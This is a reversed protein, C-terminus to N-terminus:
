VFFFPEGNKFLNYEVMNIRKSGRNIRNINLLNWNKKKKQHFCYTGFQNSANIMYMKKKKKLIVNIMYM